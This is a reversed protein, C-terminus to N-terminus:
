SDVKLTSPMSACLEEKSFIVVRIRDIHRKLPAYINKNYSIIDVSVSISSDELLTWIRDVQAESIKGYIVLDIDSNERAVDTARSGFLAVEDIDDSFAGLISLLSSRDEIAIDHAKV